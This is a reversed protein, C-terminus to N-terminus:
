LRRYALAYGPYQSQPFIGIFDSPPLFGDSIVITGNYGAQKMAAYAQKSWNDVPAAGLLIMNPENLISFQCTLVRFVNSLIVMTVLNLYRPQSFFAALQSLFNITLQGNEEGNTRITLRPPGQQNVWEVLWDYRASRQSM